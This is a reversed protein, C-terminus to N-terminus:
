LRFGLVSMGAIAQKPLRLVIDGKWTYGEKKDVIVFSDIANSVLAKTLIDASLPQGSM